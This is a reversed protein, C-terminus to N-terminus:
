PRAPPSASRSRRRRANCPSGRARCGPSSRSRRPSPGAVSGNNSTRPPARRLTSAHSPMLESELRPRELLTEVVHGDRGPLQEVAGGIADVAEHLVDQLIRRLDSAGGGVEEVVEERAGVLPVVAPAA